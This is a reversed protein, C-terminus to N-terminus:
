KHVVSGSCLRVWDTEGCTSCTMLIQNRHPAPREVRPVVEDYSHGLCACLRLKAEVNVPRGYEMESEKRPGLGM